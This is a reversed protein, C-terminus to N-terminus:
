FLALQREQESLSEGPWAEMEQVRHTHRQLENHFARALNPAYLEDPTHTFVYPTLGGIIWGAVVPAWERIWPTVRQVDNRGVLRIM